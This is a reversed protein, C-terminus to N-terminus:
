FPRKNHTDTNMKLDYLLGIFIICQAHKPALDSWDQRVTVSHIITRGPTETSPIRSVLISSHTEMGEKLPDEWGLFQVWTEQTEQMAPPNKVLQAMLSAQYCLVIKTKQIHASIHTYIYKLRNWSSYCFYWLSSSKCVVFMEKEWNQHSPLGLDYCWYIQHRTSALRRM